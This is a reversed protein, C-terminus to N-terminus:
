LIPNPSIQKQVQRNTHGCSRLQQLETHHTNTNSQCNTEFFRLHALSQERTFGMAKLARVDESDSDEGTKNSTVALERPPLKPVTTSSSTNTILPTENRKPPKYFESFADDFGFSDTTETKKTALPSFSAGFAVDLNPKSSKSTPPTTATPINTSFKDFYGFEDSSQLGFAKDFVTINTNTPKVKVAPAEFTPNFEEDFDNEDFTTEFDIPANTIKAETLDAFAADFDDQFVGPNISQINQEVTETNTKKNEVPNEFVAEFEDLSTRSIPNIVAKSLESKNNASEGTEDSSFLKTLFELDTDSKKEVNMQHTKEKIQKDDSALINKSLSSGTEITNLTFLNQDSLGDEPKINSSTNLTFSSAFNDEFGLTEAGGVSKEIEELPPFESAFADATLNERAPEGFTTFVADFKAQGGGGILNDFSSFPDATTSVKAKHEQEIQSSQVPELLDQKDKGKELTLSFKNSSNMDKKEQVPETISPGLNTSVKEVGSNIDFNVKDTSKEFPNINSIEDGVNIIGSNEQGFPPKRGFYNDFQTAESSTVLAPKDSFLEDLKASSKISEVSQTSNSGFSANSLTRKIGVDPLSSLSAQQSHLRSPTQSKPESVKDTTLSLPPKNSQSGSQHVFSETGFPDTRHQNLAGDEHLNQLTKISKDKGAELSALQKKNIALLGKQHRVDKKLKEIQAKIAVTEEESLRMKKKLAQTEELDKLIGSNLQEKELQLNALSHEALSLEARLKEVEEREKRYNAEIEQVVKIEADYLGRLQTIRLTIDQKQTRLSALNNEMQIRKTKLDSTANNLNVVQTELRRIEGNEIAIQTDIDPDGFLDIENSESKQITNIATFPSSPPSSAVRISGFFLDNSSGLHSSSTRSRLSGSGTSHNTVTASRQLKPFSSAIAPISRMSPPILSLPLTAPLVGGSSKKRILHMAVAFEESTLRGSETIDSLDWIQALVSPPLKSDIFFKAAEDGTIFGRNKEDLTAFLKDFTIKESDTIDWAEKAPNIIDGGFYSSSTNTTGVPHIKESVQRSPSLSTSKFRPSDSLLPSSPTSTQGHKPLILTSKPSTPIVSPNGAAQEYLGPPLSLPLTQIGGNMTNQIFYMAIIFETIDLHGRNKSDALQWIQSLKEVPLKSRVFIAQAKEGDLVGNKPNLSDFMAKYKERDINSIHYNQSGLPLDSSNNQKNIPEVPIGEFHPLPADKNILARDPPQGNQAQAILKLAVSFTQPTLFGKNASDAIQWIQGLVASPLGSKGFFTVAGQGTIIGDGEEDAAKFLQRFVHKEEVTLNIDPGRATM